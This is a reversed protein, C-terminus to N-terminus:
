KDLKWGAKKIVAKSEYVETHKDATAYDKFGREDIYFHEDLVDMTNTEWLADQAADMGDKDTSYILELTGCKIYYKPMNNVRMRVFNVIVRYVILSMKLIITVLQMMCVRQVLILASWYKRGKRRIYGVNGIHADMFEFDRLLMKDALTNIKDSYIYTYDDDCEGCSCENGGCGIMEAVETMYGWGSLDGNTYRIKGVQSLVKPALNYKSLKTQTSHAYEACDKNDFEKFGRESDIAYFASRSGCDEYSGVYSM